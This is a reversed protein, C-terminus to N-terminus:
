STKSSKEVVHGSYVRERARLVRLRRRGKILEVAHHMCKAVEHDIVFDPEPSSILMQIEATVLMKPM